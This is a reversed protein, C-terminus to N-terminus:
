HRNRKLSKYKVDIVYNYYYTGKLLMNEIRSALSQLDIHPQRFIELLQNWHADKKMELWSRLMRKVCTLSDNPNDARIVLLREEHELLELGIDFWKTVIHHAVYKNLYKLAPRDTGIFFYM